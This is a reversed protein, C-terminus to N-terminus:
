APSPNSIGRRRNQRLHQIHENNSIIGLLNANPAFGSIVNQHRQNSKSAEEFATRRIDFNFITLCSFFHTIRFEYRFLNEDDWSRLIWISIYSLPLADHPKHSRDSTQNWGDANSLHRHCYLGILLSVQERNATSYCGICNFLHDTPWTTLVSGRWPPLVPEFGTCVVLPRNASLMIRRVLTILQLLEFIASHQLILQSLSSLKLHHLEM